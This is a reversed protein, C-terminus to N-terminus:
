SKGGTRIVEPPWMGWARPGPVTRYCNTRYNKGHAATTLYEKVVRNEELEGENFINKLHLSINQKSSQFLEAMASQNMWVTEDQLCVEIRTEVM